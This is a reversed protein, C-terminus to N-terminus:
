ALRSTIRQVLESMADIADGYPTEEVAINSLWVRDARAARDSPHHRSLVFYSFGRKSDDRIKASIETDDRSVSFNLIQPYGAVKQQLQKLAHVAIPWDDNLKQEPSPEIRLLRDREQRARAVIEEVAKIAAGLTSAGMSTESVAM